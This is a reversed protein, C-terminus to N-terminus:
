VSYLPCGQRSGTGSSSAGDVMGYTGAARRTGNKSLECMWHLGDLTGMKHQETKGEALINLMLEEGFTTQYELNFRIKM